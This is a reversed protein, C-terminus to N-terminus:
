RAAGVERAVENLNCYVMIEVGLRMKDFRGPDPVYRKTNESIEEFEGLFLITFNWPSLYKDKKFKSIKRCTRFCKVPLLHHNRKKLSESPFGTGM